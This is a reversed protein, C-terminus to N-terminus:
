LFINDLLRTSGMRIVTSVLAGKSPDIKDTTFELGTEKDAVSIYDLEIYKKAKENVLVTKEYIQKLQAISTIHQTAYAKQMAQLGKYMQPAWKRQESSLYVNRSSMALGDSERVTNGIVVDIDFNLEKVMNKIVICQMADKQGFFAKTPQVLHFLKTVVTAVGDFHGPRKASEPQNDIGKISVITSQGDRGKPYMEEELPLFCVDVGKEQLLELDREIPRPYKNLDEHKGFQLPNVFISAVTTQCQQKSLTNLYLHGQHLAGMTPVFGITHHPSAIQRRWQRLEAISKIVRVM